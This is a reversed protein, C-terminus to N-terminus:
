EAGEDNRNLDGITVKTGNHEVRADMGADIARAVCWIAGWGMLEGVGAIISGDISGTPPWPLFFGLLMFVVSIMTLVWFPTNHTIADKLIKGM